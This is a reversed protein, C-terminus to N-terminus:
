SKMGSVSSISRSPFNSFNSSFAKALFPAEKDEDISAAAAAVVVGDPESAFLRLFFDRFLDAEEDEKDEEEDATGAEDADDLAPDGSGGEFFLRSLSLWWLWWCMLLFFVPSFSTSFFLFLLLEPLRDEDVAAVDEFVAPPKM